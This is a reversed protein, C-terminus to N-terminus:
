EIAPIFGDGAGTIIIVKNGRDRAVEGLAQAMERHPDHGWVCPGGDTHLTLQLIGERRELTIHKYQNAYEEFKSM